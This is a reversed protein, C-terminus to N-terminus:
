ERFGVTAKFIAWACTVSVMLRAVVRILEFLPKGFINITCLFSFDIEKRIGTYVEIYRTQTLFAPCNSSGGLDGFDINFLHGASDTISSAVDLIETIVTATDLTFGTDSVLSDLSFKDMETTLLNTKEKWSLASDAWNSTNVSTDPFQIITTDAGGNEGGSGSGFNTGTYNNFFDQMSKANNNQNYDLAKISSNIDNLIPFYNLQTIGSTTDFFTSDPPTFNTDNLTKPFSCNNFDVPCSPYEPLYDIACSGTLGTKHNYLHARNGSNGTYVYDDCNCLIPDFVKCGSGFDTPVESTDRFLSDGIAGSEGGDAGGGGGSGFGGGSGGGFAGGAGSGATYDNPNVGEATTGRCGFENCSTVGGNSINQSECSGVCFSGYNEGDPGTLNDLWETEGTGQAIARSCLDPANEANLIKKLNGDEDKEYYARAGTGLQASISAPINLCITDKPIESEFLSDREQQTECGWSADLRTVKEHTEDQRVRFGGVWVGANHAGTNQKTQCAPQDQGSQNTLDCIFVFNSCGGSQPFKKDLKAGASWMLCYCGSFSFDFFGLVIFM